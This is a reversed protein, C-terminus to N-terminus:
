AALQKLSRGSPRGQCAPIKIIYQLQAPRIGQGSFFIIKGCSSLKCFFNRVGGMDGAYRLILHLVSVIDKVSKASLGKNNQMNGSLLLKDTFERVIETSLETVKLFGLGPIIHNNM